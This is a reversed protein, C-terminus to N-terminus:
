RPASFLRELLRYDSLTLTGTLDMDVSNDFFADVPQDVSIAGLQVLGRRQIHQTVNRLHDELLANGNAYRTSAETPAGDSM